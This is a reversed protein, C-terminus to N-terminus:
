LCYLLNKGWGLKEKVQSKIDKIRFRNLDVWYRFVIIKSKDVGLKEIEGASQKSLTLVMHSNSFIWKAFRTYLGDAWVAESGSPFNYISHTTTIVKIRFIKGWFVATFGAVLGHSHIVDPKELFIVFPAAIFLGPLLYIFEAMPNHVFRYFFGPFWPVRCISLKNSREFIKWEAKTVLPRYTLVFVDFRKKVLGKVLDDLHTEVGGINPKFHSTIQLIKM